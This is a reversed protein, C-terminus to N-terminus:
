RPSLSLPNINSSLRQDPRAHKPSERHQKTPSKAPQSTAYAERNQARRQNGHNKLSKRKIKIYDEYLDERIDMAPVYKALKKRKEDLPAKDAKTQREVFRGYDLQQELVRMIPVQEMKKVCGPRSEDKDVLAITLRNKNFREALSIRERVVPEISRPSKQEEEVVLPGMDGQKTQLAVLTVVLDKEKEKM